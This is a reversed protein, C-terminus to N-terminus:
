IGQATTTPIYPGFRSMIQPLSTYYFMHAIFPNELAIMMNSIGAFIMNNNARLVAALHKNSTNFFTQFLDDILNGFFLSVFFQFKFYQVIM